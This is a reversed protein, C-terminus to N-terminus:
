IKKKGAAQASGRACNKIKEKVDILDNDNKSRVEFKLEATGPIINTREGAETFIMNFSCNPKMQQRLMSVNSYCAVAADLANIGEWPADAAHASRGIFFYFNEVKILFAIKM